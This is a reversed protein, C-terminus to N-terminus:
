ENKYEGEEFIEVSLYITRVKYGLVEYEHNLVLCVMPRETNEAVRIVSNIPPVVPSNFYAITKKDLDLGNFLVINIM